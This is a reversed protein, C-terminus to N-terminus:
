GVHSLEFRLKWERSTGFSSPLNQIIWKPMRSAINLYKTSVAWMIHPLWSMFMTLICNITVKTVSYYDVHSKLFSTKMRKSAGFWRPLYQTIGKPLGKAMNLHKRSLQLSSQHRVMWIKQGCITAVNTLSQFKYIYCNNRKTIWSEHVLFFISFRGEPRGGHLFRKTFYWVSVSSLLHKRQKQELSCPIPPNNAARRLSTSFGRVCSQYCVTLSNSNERVSMTIVVVWGDIFSSGHNEREVQARGYAIGNKKSLKSAPLNVLGKERM